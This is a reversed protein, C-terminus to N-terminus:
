VNELEQKLSYLEAIAFGWANALKGTHDNLIHQQLVSLRYNINSIIIARENNAGAQRALENTTIM